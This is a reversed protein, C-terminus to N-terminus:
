IDEYIDEYSIKMGEDVTVEIVWTETPCIPSRGTIIAQAKGTRLPYLTFIVNYGSGCMEEHNENMYHRRSYWTFIGPNKIEFSYEPGGGDFSDYVLKVTSNEKEMAYKFYNRIDNFIKNEKIEGTDTSYSRLRKGEYIISIIEKNTVVFSEASSEVDNVINYDEDTECWMEEDIDRFFIDLNSLIEITKEFIECDAAMNKSDVKVKELIAMSDNKRYLKYIINESSDYFSCEEVRKHM